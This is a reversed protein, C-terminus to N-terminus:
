VLPTEETNVISATKLEVAAAGANTMLVPILAAAETRAKELTLDEKPSTISVEMNGNGETTFVLKLKKAM